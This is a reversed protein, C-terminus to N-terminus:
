TLDQRNSNDVTSTATYRSFARLQRLCKLSTELERYADKIAADYGEKYAEKWMAKEEPTYEAKVTPAM